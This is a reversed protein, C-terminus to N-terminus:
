MRKLVSLGAPWLSRFTWLFFFIPQTVLWAHVAAKVEHYTVFHCGRLTDRLPGFLQYNSPALDPSHPSHKLVFNLQHLSETTHAATHLCANNHLVTDSKMIARPM